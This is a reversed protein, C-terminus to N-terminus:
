FHFFVAWLGQFIIMGSASIHTRKEFTLVFNEATTVDKFQRSFENDNWTFDSVKLVVKKQNSFM